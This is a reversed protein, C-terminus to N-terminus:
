MIVKNKFYLVFDLYDCLHIQKMLCLGAWNSM